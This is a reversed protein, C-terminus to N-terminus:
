RWMTMRYGCASCRLAEWLSIEGPLFLESVDAFLRLPSRPLLLHLDAPNGPEGLEEICVCVTQWVQRMTTEPHISYGSLDEFIKGNVWHDPLIFPVCQLSTVFVSLAGVRERAPGETYPRRFVFRSTPVPIRRPECKSWESSKGALM